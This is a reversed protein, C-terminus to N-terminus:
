LEWFQASDIAHQTGRPPVKVSASSLLISLLRFLDGHETDGRLQAVADAELLDFQFQDPLRVFEACVTAAATKVSALEAASAGQPPFVIIINRKQLLVSPCHM